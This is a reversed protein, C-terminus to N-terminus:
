EFLDMNGTKKKPSFKAPPDHLYASDGKDLYIADWGRERLDSAFDKFGHITFIKKPQATEVYKILDNYDAHDSLPVVDDAGTWRPIDSIGWGSLFCTRVKRLGKMEPNRRWFPPAILVKDRYTERDFREWEGFKVGCKEYLVSMDYVSPHVSAAYGEDTIIKLAEQAKGLSYALLMPTYGSVRASKIFKFMMEISKDRSPFVYHPRGYTTEMILVDCKKIEIPKVTASERLKFDGTYAIKRGDHEIMIQASGLIHGSSYLEISTDGIKTKQGLPVAHSMVRKYRKRFFLVTEPTALIKNHRAVHDSHAHSVFAFDKKRTSDLPFSVGEIEIGSNFHIM